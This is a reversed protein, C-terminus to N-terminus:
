RRPPATPAAAQPPTFTPTKGLLDQRFNPPPGELRPQNGTDVPLSDSCNALSMGMEKLGNGSFKLVVQSPLTMQFEQTGAMLQDLLGSATDGYAALDGQIQTPMAAIAPILDNRHNISLGLNGQANNPLKWGPNLLLVDMGHNQAIRFVLTTQDPTTTMLLCSIRTADQTKQYTWVGSQLSELMRPGPAAPPPPTPKAPTRLVPPLPRSPQVPQIGQSWAPSSLVALFGLIYARM